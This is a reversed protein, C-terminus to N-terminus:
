ESNTRAPSAHVTTIAKEPDTQASSGRDFIGSSANSTNIVSSLEEKAHVPEQNKSKLFPFGRSKLSLVLRSKMFPLHGTNEKYRMVLFGIVVVIWYV